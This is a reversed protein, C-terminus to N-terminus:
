GKNENKRIGMLIKIFTPLRFKENLIEDISFTNAGTWAFSLVLVTWLIPYEWGGGQNAWVFGDSFHGGLISCVILYTALCISGVRTFLGCALSLAGGIEMLGGLIVFFLAHPLHFQTAFTIVDVQRIATGAFLKECFHPIMDYGIYMRIFLLQWEFASSLNRSNVYEKNLLDNKITLVFQLFILIFTFLCLYGVLSYGALDVLRWSTIFTFTSLLFFPTYSM